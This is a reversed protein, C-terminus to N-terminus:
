SNQMILMIYLRDSFDKALLEYPVSDSSEIALVVTTLTGYGNTAISAALLLRQQKLQGNLKGYHRQTCTSWRLRRRNNFWSDPVYSPRTSAVLDVPPAYVKTYTKSIKRNKACIIESSLFSKHM